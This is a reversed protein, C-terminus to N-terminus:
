SVKKYVVRSDAVLDHIAQRQEHTIILVLSILLLLSGVFPLFKVVSRLAAKSPTLYSGSQDVVAIKTVMKGVTQGRNILLLSEYAILMLPLLIFTFGNRFSFSITLIIMSSAGLILSDILLAVVRSSVPALTLVVPQQPAAATNPDV